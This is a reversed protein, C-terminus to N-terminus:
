TLREHKKSITSKILRMLKENDTKSKVLIGQVKEAIAPAVDQASFIIIPTHHKQSELTALLDLGSGDPLGIDLLVLDFVEDNVLHRAQNLTGAHTVQYEDALLAEVITAIDLDDEVHLLRGGQGVSQSLSSHIADLLMKEEIPKQIWDMVNLAAGEVKLRGETARASVVIVPLNATAKNKRLEHLLKIGSGGPIKLDLTLANYHNNRLRQEAEQYSFAQHFCYGEKELMMGLLRSVDQDDEVILILPRNSHAKDSNTEIGLQESWIPLDVYFTTGADESSDFGISGDLQEVIAKTINLGLGSGGKQRTDSSDAQAFKSFIRSKFEQPIGKGHDHVCIRVRDNKTEVSIEVQGEKPSYKAANSLLNSMVQAMRKEDICVMVVTDFGAKFEFRVQLQDAYGRNSEIAQQIVPILNIVRNEFQMKGATIKEMDLIDNILNILRESNNNAITLLEMAKEPLAGALGGMILGLSGRISTLPTRLEHSVTSIFEKQMQEIHKRETIDRIIGVFYIANDIMLDSVALEMPFTSGDSRRGTVERGIGIVKKEGTTLHHELYGDHESHYPEPMLMKVNQGIVQANSYGFIRRAAPNFSEITGRDNITIIGDVVNDIIASLRKAQVAVQNELQRNSQQQKEAVANFCEYLTHFEDRVSAADVRATLDGEQLRGTAAALNIVPSLIKRSIFWIIPLLSLLGILLSFFLMKNLARASGAFVVNRPVNLTLLWYRDRDGPSFYIKQFGDLEHHHSHFRMFQDQHAAMAALEPEVTQFRYDFGLELGFIKAPDSHKIYQGQEDVINRQVGDATSSIGSFLRETALNIVILAAVKGDANHVPTALKLVPLHPVEIVGHERNLSVDSYYTEGAALKLTESVYLSDAKNQLEPDAIVAHGEPGAQVRVLEEGAVDIYRIQQYGPHNDLFAGFITALRDRWEQLTDGNDPDVRNNARARIIAQIPPVDRLSLLNNHHNNLDGEIEHKLLSFKSQELELVKLELVNQSQWYSAFSLIILALFILAGLALTTKGRLGFKYRNNM